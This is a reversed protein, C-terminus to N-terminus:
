IEAFRNLHLVLLGATTARYVVPHYPLAHSRREPARQLLQMAVLDFLGDVVLLHRLATVDEIFQATTWQAGSRAVSRLIALRNRRVHPAAEAALAQLDPFRQHFIPRRMVEDRFGRDLEAQLEWDEERRPTQRRDDPQRAITGREAASAISLAIVNM